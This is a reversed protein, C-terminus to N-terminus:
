GGMKQVAKMAAQMTFGSTLGDDILIAPRGSLEPFPRGRRIRKVRRTVRSLTRDIGEQVEEHNLGLGAVLQCNLCVTGDFAVAGYGAETNWTLAIKSVV